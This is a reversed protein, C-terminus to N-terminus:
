DTGLFEEPVSCPDLELCGQLKGGRENTLHFCPIRHSFKPYEDDRITKVAEERRFVAMYGDVKRLLQIQMSLDTQGFIEV